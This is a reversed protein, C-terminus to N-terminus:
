RAVFGLSRWARWGTLWRGGRSRECVVGAASWRRWVSLPHEPAMPPRCAVSGGALLHMWVPPAVVCAEAGRLWLSGPAGPMVQRSPFWALGCSYPSLLRGDRGVGRPRAGVFSGVGPGQLLGLDVVGFVVPRKWVRGGALLGMVPWVPAGGAGCGALGVLPPGWVRATPRGEWVSM